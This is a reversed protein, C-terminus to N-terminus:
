AQGGDLSVNVTRLAPENVSPLQPQLPSGFTLQMLFLRGTFVIKLREWLTLKWKSIVTVQPDACRIAPLPLYEPQGKAFVVEDFGKVVPSIPKMNTFGGVM